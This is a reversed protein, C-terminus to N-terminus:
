RFSRSFTPTNLKDYMSTQPTNYDKMKFYIKYFNQSKRDINNLNKQFIQIIKKRGIHKKLTQIDELEWFNLARVVVIEDDYSLKATDYEWLSNKLTNSVQIM